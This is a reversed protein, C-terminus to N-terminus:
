TAPIPNIRARIAKTEQRTFEIELWWGGLPRGARGNSIHYYDKEQKYCSGRLFWQQVEEVIGRRGCKILMNEDANRRHIHGSYYIDALYQSRTRNNDIMGRTVEGGGGYGHHWCLVASCSTCAHGAVKGPIEFVFRVFGQYAGYHVGLNHTLPRLIDFDHRQLISQEHNGGTILAINDKFPEYWETATELVKNLYDDGRHEPRLQKDSKRKDWKGQMLCLTDGFKFIPAGFKLAQNHHQRLVTRNCGVNDWHEDSMLLIRIKEKASKIKFRCEYSQKSVEKITWNM